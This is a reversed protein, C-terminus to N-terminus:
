RKKQRTLFGEYERMSLQTEIQKMTDLDVAVLILLSTGGMLYAFGPSMGNFLNVNLLIDPFIAILALFLAGALTIRTLVRRLYHETQEGPRFGPVYGGQRKLNGAIEVPNFQVQTYFFAFLIVLLGYIFIYPVRGPSLYAAVTAVTPYNTGFMQAIQAPILVIASAFIIPIVGTPNIKFPLYTNQAGYVKRGVVRRAFQVNIRRQGQEEYVVFFVVALFILLLLVFAIPNFDGDRVSQITKLFENPIRAAIGAFIILSVGNGIGRQTIQEGLWMLFVTGTTITTVVLITFLIPSNVLTASVVGDHTAMWRSIATAQIVCIIVTMYYIYQQIKKRGEEGERSLQELHPVVTTMLQIIISASIYPMIGLGFITFREFAGGVFLDIYSILGGLAQGRLSEILASLGLPDIGPTTIHSGLRYVVLCIITFFIRERLEKVKLINSFINAM